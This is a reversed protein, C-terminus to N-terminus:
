DNEKIHLIEEESLGTIECIEEIPYSKELMKRATEIKTKMTGEELGRELGEEKARKAARREWSTVYPMTKGGTIEILEENLDREREKSLQLLWDIFKLVAKIRNKSYQKGFLTRILEKKADYLDEEHGRDKSYRLSALVVLAFPNNSTELVARSSRYDILKVVPFEMELRFGWRERSYRNPRYTPDPDTLIVASIVERNYRNFIRYTYIFIREAFEKEKNGQVEVHLLLWKEPGSKLYVKVLKDAYRKGVEDRDMIKQLEKDLFSYGRSFDIDRHMRPFFFSLFDEFLEEIVDKWASDQSVQQSNTKM